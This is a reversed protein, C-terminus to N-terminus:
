GVLFDFFRNMLQYNISQNDFVSQNTLVDIRQGIGTNTLLDAFGEDAV